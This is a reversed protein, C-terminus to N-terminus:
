LCIISVINNRSHDRSRPKLFGRGLVGTGECGGDGSAGDGNGSAGLDWVGDGSGSIILSIDEIVRIDLSLRADITEVLLYEGKERSEETSTPLSLLGDTVLMDDNEVDDLLYSIMPCLDISELALTVLRQDDSVDLLSESAMGSCSISELSELVDKADAELTRDESPDLLSDSAMRALLRLDDALDECTLLCM